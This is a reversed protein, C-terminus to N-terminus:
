GSQSRFWIVPKILLILLCIEKTKSRYKSFRQIVNKFSIGHCLILYWECAGVMLWVSIRRGWHSRNNHDSKLHSEWTVSSTVPNNTINIVSIVVERDTEPAEAKDSGTGPAQWPAPSCFIELDGLSLPNINIYSRSGERDGGRLSKLTPHINPESSSNCKDM